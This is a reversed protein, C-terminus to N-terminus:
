FDTITFFSLLKQMFLYWRFLSINKKIAVLSLFQFMFYSYSQGVLFDFHTNIFSDKSLFYILLMNCFAFHVTLMQIVDPMAIDDLRYRPQDFRQSLIQNIFTSILIKLYIYSRRASSPRNDSAEISWQSCPLLQAIQLLNM